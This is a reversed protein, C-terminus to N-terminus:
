KEKASSAAFTEKLLERISESDLPKSFLYGQVYACNMGTLHVIQEGKEVGEAIVDMGLNSALTVITQVIESNKPLEVRTIFSRDIKLTDIPFRHLYSLSSYGTGFDDLSIRIGLQKLQRLMDAAAEPHDIISSETIELKLSAPDLGTATLIQSIKEILDSQAFQKGSLNVSVSLPPNSPFEAQWQRLQRCAEHLIWQGIPIILGTEEALPIFQMPSIPGQEPHDWRLLAEFGSIHWNRLSIIPQYYVRFQNRALAQRLEAELRRLAKPHGAPDRDSVEFRGRGQEKARQMATEADRLMDEPREYPTSSSTIGTSVSTFVEQGQIRFPRTLEKQIREAALTADAVQSLHDLIIGFENGGIRAVMDGPRLCGKLRGAIAALLQDGFHHGLRENVAKFHDVDLLLLAFLYNAELRARELQRRLRQLFSSRNPLGTLLDHAAGHFSRLEVNRYRTLDSISGTLRFVEGKENRIAQGRCLVWRYTGQRHRLRHENQFHSTLGELHAAKDTQFKKLDDPHIRSLWEEPRPGIEHEQYGLMAKWRPCYYVENTKLDWDWLGDTILRAATELWKERVALSEFAEGRESLQRKLRQNLKLLEVKEREAQKLVQENLLMMKELHECETELRKFALRERRLELQAMVAHSLIRLARAQASNLNRPRQDLVCLTGIAHGEPTILPAGAYFRLEPHTTIWPSTKFREDQWLDSVILLDSGLITWACFSGAREIRTPQWGVTSKYWLHDATILGLLAIPAACVHAALHTLEDFVEEPETELIAYQALAALRAAENAPLPAQTRSQEPTLTEQRNITALERQWSILGNTREPGGLPKISDRSGNEL